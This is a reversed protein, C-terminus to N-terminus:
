HKFASLDRFHRNKCNLIYLLHDYNFIYLINYANKSVIFIKDLSSNIINTLKLEKITECPLAYLLDSTIKGKCKFNMCKCSQMSLSELNKNSLFLVKLDEEDFDIMHLLCNLKKFKNFIRKIIDIERKYSFEQYGIDINKLRPCEEVIMDVFEDDLKHMESGKAIKLRSCEEVTMDVIDDNLKDLFKHAESRGHEGFSLDILFRGCRKLLCRFIPKFEEYFETDEKTGFTELNFNISEM